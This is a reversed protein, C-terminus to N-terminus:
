TVEKEKTFYRKKKKKKLTKSSTINPSLSNLLIRSNDKMYPLITNKNKKKLKDGFIRSNYKINPLIIKKYLKSDEKIDKSFNNAVM